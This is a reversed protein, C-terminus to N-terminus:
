LTDFLGLSHLALNFDENSKWGQRQLQETLTQQQWPTIEISPKYVLQAIIKISVWLKSQMNLEKKSNQEAELLPIMWINDSLLENLNTNLQTTDTNTIGFFASLPPSYRKNLQDSVAVKRMIKTSNYTLLYHAYGYLPLVLHEFQLEKNKSVVLAAITVLGKLRNLFFRRMPHATCSVLELFVVRQIVAPANYYGVMSLSHRLSSAAQKEKNYFTVSLCINEIIQPYGALIHNLTKFDYERNIKIQRILAILASPDEKQETSQKHAIHQSDWVTYHIREDDCQWQLSSGILNASVRVWNLKKSRTNNVLLHRNKNDTSLFIVKENDYEVQSGPLLPGTHEILLKLANQAFINPTRVYIDAVATYFSIHNQSKKYSINTAIINALTVLIAGRDYLMIKPTSLLAQKYKQLKSLISALALPPTHETKIIQIALKHRLQWLKKDSATFAQDNDLKNLQEAVCLNELLSASVLNISIEDSYNHAKCLALTIICQNITVNNFYSRQPQNLVCQAQLPLPAFSYIRWYQAALQHLMPYITHWDAKNKYLALFAATRTFLTKLQISLGDESPV